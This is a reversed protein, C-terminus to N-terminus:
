SSFSSIFDEMGKLKPSELISAQDSDVINSLDPSKLKYLILDPLSRYPITRKKPRTVLLYSVNETGFFDVLYQRKTILREELKRYYSRLDSISAEIFVIHNNYIFLGDYEAAKKGNKYFIIQGNKDFGLNDSNTAGVGKLLFSTVSPCKVAWAKLYEYVWAEYIEGELNEGLHVTNYNKVRLLASDIEDQNPSFEKIADKLEKFM